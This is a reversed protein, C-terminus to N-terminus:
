LLLSRCGTTGIWVNGKRDESLAILNLYNVNYHFISIDRMTPHNKPLHPNSIIAGTRTDLRDLMGNSHVIWLIDSHDMFFSIFAIPHCDPM